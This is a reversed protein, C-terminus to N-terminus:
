FKRYSKYTINGKYYEVFGVDLVDCLAPNLMKQFQGGKEMLEEKLGEFQTFYVYHGLTVVAIKAKKM